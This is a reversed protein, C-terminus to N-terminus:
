IDECNNQTKIFQRVEEHIIDINNIVFDLQENTQIMGVRQQRLFLIIEQFNFDIPTTLNQEYHNEITNWVHLTLFFVGTRGIGASCHVCISALPVHRTMKILTLLDAISEPVGFDPWGQYHAHMFTHSNKGDNVILTRFDINHEHITFDNTVSINDFFITEHQKTPFYFACKEKKNEFFDCLMFIYRVKPNTKSLIMVWVEKMNELVPIPGQMAIAGQVQDPNTKVYNANVRPSIATEVIPLINSYRDRNEVFEHILPVEEDLILATKDKSIPKTWTIQIKDTEKKPHLSSMSDTSNSLSKALKSLSSALEKLEQQQISM